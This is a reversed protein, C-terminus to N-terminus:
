LELSYLKNDYRNIFILQRGLLSLHTADIAPEDQAFILQFSNQNIDIQYIADSFYVARKLYDDPLTPEIISNYSQPLGCYLAAEALLCKQPLTVFDLNGLIAGSSAILSLQSQRNQGVRFFLGIKGDNSWNTILGRGSVILSLTKTKIDIAWLQSEYEFSPKPVLLIKEATLWTLDFDKESISLLKTTKPKLGILDKIVLNAPATDELYAIKKSDPSFAAATINTLDRRVKTETNLLSFQPKNLDGYKLLVFKGDPSAKVSQLNELTQSYFIEDEGENAKIIKGEPNFYLIESVVITTTTSGALSSTATRIWYDFIPEDSLVKLIPKAVAPAGAQREGGIQQNEVVPREGLSPPTMVAKYNKWAFYIGAAMAAVAMLIGLIIIIKKM